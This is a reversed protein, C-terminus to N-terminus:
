DMMVFGAWYVPEEYKARIAGKARNFALLKDGNLAPDLLGQYFLQMFEQTVRDSVPWLSMVITGAGAKKFARQLGYIGEDTTKGEGTECASLVVLELGSLDMKAIEQATVIGNHVGQPIPKNSWAANAGAFALGSLAMADKLGAFLPKNDGEKPDYYFGHTAIHLLKPAHGDLALFAEATGVSGSFQEVSWGKKQMLAGIKKVEVATGPLPVLRESGRIASRRLAFTGEKSYRVAATMWEEEDLDYNLGGFMVARGLSDAALLGQRKRLENASSIRMFRYHDGLLSGDELPISSLDIKYFRLDAVSYFLFLILCRLLM